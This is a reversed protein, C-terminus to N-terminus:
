NTALKLQAWGKTNASNCFPPIRTDLIGSMEPLFDPCKWIIAALRLMKPMFLSWYQQNIDCNLELHLFNLLFCANTRNWADYKPLIWCICSESMKQNFIRIGSPFLRKAVRSNEVSGSKDNDDAADYLPDLTLIDLDSNIPESKLSLTM